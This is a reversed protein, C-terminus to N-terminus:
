GRHAGPLVFSSSIERVIPHSVRYHDQEYEMTPYPINEELRFHGSANNKGEVAIPRKISFNKRSQEEWLDVCHTQVETTM